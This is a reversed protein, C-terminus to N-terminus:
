SPASSWQRLIDMVEARFASQQEPHSGWVRLIDMYRTRLDSQHVTLSAITSIVEETNDTTLVLAVKEVPASLPHPVNENEKINEPPTINDIVSEAQFTNDYRYFKVVLKSGNELYLAVDLSVKYLNELKFEAKHLALSCVNHLGITGSSSQPASHYGGGIATTTDVDAIPRYNTGWNNIPDNVQDHQFWWDFDFM